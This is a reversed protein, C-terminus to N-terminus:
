AAKGGLVWSVLEMRGSVGAKFCMGQIRNDVGRPELELLYAIEKTRFGDVLLDLIQRERRAFSVKPLIGM